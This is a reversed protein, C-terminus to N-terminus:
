VFIREDRHTHEFGKISSDLVEFDLELVVGIVFRGEELESLLSESRNMKEGAVEDLGREIIVM